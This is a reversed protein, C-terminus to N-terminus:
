IQTLIQNMISSSVMTIGGALNYQFRIDNASMISLLPSIYSAM